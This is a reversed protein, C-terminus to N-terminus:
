IELQFLLPLHDSVASRDPRGRDTILPTTGDTVLIRLRTPQFYPLLSPRVLVQDFMNWFFWKSRSSSYYCTGPPEHQDSGPPFLDHTSDGFHSWMPNYFFPHDVSDIQRHGAGAVERSMVANLGEASVMGTEFPNMNLDGVVLTRDHQKELARIIGSFGPMAQAQSEDDRFLKSGFHVALLNFTPRGSLRVERCTYKESEDRLKMFRGSFRPFIAIRPCLSNPDPDRFPEGPGANIAKLVDAAPLPCEALILLDVAHRDTLKSLISALRGERGRARRPLDVEETRGGMNWFLFTLM